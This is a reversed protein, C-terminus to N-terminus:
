ETPGVMEAFVDMGYNRLDEEEVLLGMLSIIVSGEAKGRFYFFSIGTMGGDPTNKIYTRWDWFDELHDLKGVELLEGDGNIVGECYGEFYPGREKQFEKDVKPIDTVMMVLNTESSRYIQMIGGSAVQQGLDEFDDPITITFEPMVLAAILIMLTTM